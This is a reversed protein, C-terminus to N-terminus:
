RFCQKHFCATQSLLACVPAQVASFGPSPRISDVQSVTNQCKRARGGASSASGRAGTSAGIMRLRLQQPPARGSELLVGQVACSMHLHELESNGATFDEMGGSTTTCFSLKPGGVIVLFVPQMHVAPAAFSNLKSFVGIGPSKPWARCGFSRPFRGSSLSLPTQARM